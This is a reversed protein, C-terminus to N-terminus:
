TRTFTIRKAGDTCEYFAMPLYRDEQGTRVCRFGDAEATAAADFGLPRAVKAVLAEAEPCGMGFAVISSAVDDSNPTFGVNACPTGASPDVRVEFTGVFCATCAFAIRYRGAVVPADGVDSQPCTGRAPVTLEGSLRGDATVRITHEAQASVGCGGSGALWLMKGPGQWQADTFGSGEVRVRDGAKGAGPTVIVQPVGDKYAM